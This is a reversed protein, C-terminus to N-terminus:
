YAWRDQEQAPLTITRGVGGDLCNKGFETRFLSIAASGTCHTPVVREVGLHRMEAIIAQLTNKDAIELLHFGGALLSVRGPVVEQAQRVMNAVGPHACGTIVVTGDPTKMVLAQEVISGIPRTLYIGPFIALADTVEVLKTRARVQEKFTNSFASPVYITPRVGTDLLAQLGGIHDYHEHSLVIAEISQPKKGLHRMNALLIAGDAGTDFLLTHNGYEVLAAFGWDAKLRPDFATNDFLITLRLDGKATAPVTSPAASTDGTLCGILLGVVTTWILLFRCCKM